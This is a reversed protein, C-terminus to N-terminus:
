LDGIDDVDGGDGCGDGGEDVDSADGCGDGGDCGDDGDSGDNKKLDLGLTTASIRHQSSSAPDDRGKSNDWCFDTRNTNRPCLTLIPGLRINGDM